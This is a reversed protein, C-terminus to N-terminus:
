GSVLLLIIFSSFFLLLESNDNVLTVEYDSMLRSTCNIYKPKSDTNPSATPHMCGVNTLLCHYQIHHFGGSQLSVEDGIRL